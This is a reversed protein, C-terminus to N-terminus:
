CYDYYVAEREEIYCGEVTSDTKAIALEHMADRKTPHEVGSYEEWEHDTLRGEVMIVYRKM